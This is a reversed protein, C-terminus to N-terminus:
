RRWVTEEVPTRDLIVADQNFRERYARAIQHLKARLRGPHCLPAKERAFSNAKSQPAGPGAQRQDAAAVAM